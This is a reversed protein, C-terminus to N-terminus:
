RRPWDPLRGLRTQANTGEDSQLGLATVNDLHNYGSLSAYLLEEPSRWPRAPVIIPPGCGGAEIAEYQAAPVSLGGHPLTNDEIRQTVKAGGNRKRMERLVILQLCLLLGFSLFVLALLLGFM